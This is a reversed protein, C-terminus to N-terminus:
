TSWFQCEALGAGVNSPLVHILILVFLCCRKQIRPIAQFPISQSAWAEFVLDVSYLLNAKSFFVFNRIIVIEVLMHTGISPFWRALILMFIPTLLCKRFTALPKLTLSNSECSSNLLFCLFLISWSRVEIRLFVQHFEFTSILWSGSILLEQGENLLRLPVGHFSRTWTVSTILDFVSSEVGLRSGCRHMGFRFLLLESSSKCSYRLVFIICCTGSFIPM